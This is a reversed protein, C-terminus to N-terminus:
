DLEQASVGMADFRECLAWKKPGSGPAPIRAVLCSIDDVDVVKIPSFQGDQYYPTGLRASAAQIKVPRIVALLLVSPRQTVRGNDDTITPLDAHFELVRLLQGYAVRRELVVPRRPHRANKDVDHSYFSADRTMNKESAQCLDAGRIKDGGNLFSIKGWHSIEEPVIDRAQQANVEFSLLLYREIAKRLAATVNGRRHPRLVCIDPNRLFLVCHALSHGSRDEERGDSLDLEDRLRYTLKIISNQSIERIRRAFSAYPNKRSKSSRVLFGVYRETIYNWYCWMPGGNLIDDPIHLLAHITLVCTSLRHPKYQYYIKEFTQVWDVIRRRLTVDVYERDISMRLCDNFIQVLDLYHNYYKPKSFRRRLVVPGHFTAFQTYSEATFYHRQTVLNPVRAGFAAPTTDGAAVCASGIAELAAPELEYDESGTDLGKYEGSWFSLLNKIVNEPILHM